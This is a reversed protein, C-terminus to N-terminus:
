VSLIGSTWGISHMYRLRGSRASARGYTQDAEVSDFRRQPILLRHKAMLDVLAQRNQNAIREREAQQAPTLKM